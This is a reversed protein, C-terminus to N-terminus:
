STESCLWALSWGETVGRSVVPQEGGEVSGNRRGIRGMVIRGDM